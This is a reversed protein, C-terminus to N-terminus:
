LLKKNGKFRVKLRGKFSLNKVEGKSLEKMSISDHPCTHICDGCGDCSNEDVIILGDKVSLEEKLKKAIIRKKLNAM